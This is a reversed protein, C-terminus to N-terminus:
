HRAGARNPTGTVKLEGPQWVERTWHQEVEPASFFGVVRLDEASTNHLDHATGETLVIV